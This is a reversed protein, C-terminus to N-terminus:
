DGVAYRETMDWSLKRSHSLSSLHKTWTKNGRVASPHDLLKTGEVCDVLFYANYDINRTSKTAVAKLFCTHYEEVKLKKTRVLKLNIASCIDQYSVGLPHYVMEINWPPQSTESWSLISDVKHKITQGNFWKRKRQEVNSQLTIKNIPSQKIFYRSQSWTLM